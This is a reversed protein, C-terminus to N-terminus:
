EGQFNPPPQWDLKRREEDEWAKKDWQCTGETRSEFDVVPGKPRKKLLVLLGGEDVQELFDFQSWHAMSRMEETYRRPGECNVTDHIAICWAGLSLAKEADHRVVTYKHNGDIFAMDIPAPPWAVEQSRGYVFGIYAEVDCRKINARFLNGQDHEVWCFNDICVLFGKGNEQLGRALWCASYGIHSGVEVVLNPRLWRVLAYLFPPHRYPTPIREVLRRFDDFPMM